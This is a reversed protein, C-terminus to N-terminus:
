RVGGPRDSQRHGSGFNAAVDNWHAAADDTLFEHLGDYGRDRQCQYRWWTSPCHAIDNV